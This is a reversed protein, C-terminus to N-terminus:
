LITILVCLISMIFRCAYQCMPADFVLGCTTKLRMAERTGGFQRRTSKREDAVGGGEGGRGSRRSTSKAWM